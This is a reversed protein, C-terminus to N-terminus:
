ASLVFLLDNWYIKHSDPRGHLNDQLLESDGMVGISHVCDTASKCRSHDVNKANVTTPRHELQLQESLQRRASRVDDIVHTAM